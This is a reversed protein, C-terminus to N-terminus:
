KIVSFKGIHEAEGNKGCVKYIYTGSSLTTTELTAKGGEVKLEIHDKGLLSFALIKEASASTEFNVSTSSPNPYVKVTSAASEEIGVTASVVGQFNMQDVFLVSGVKPFANFFDSSLFVILATDPTDNTYYNLSFEDYTYSSTQLFQKGGEAVTVRASVAPNWKTLQVFAAGVDGSAPAYKMYYTLKEPRFAYPYGKMQGTNFDVTGSLMYGLTDFGPDPATSFAKTEIRAAFSGSYKDTSKTVTVPNASSLAKYQNSTSWGTPEDYVFFVNTWNEMGSNPITGTQSFSSLSFASLFFLLILNKM